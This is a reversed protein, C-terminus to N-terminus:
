VQRFRPGLGTLSLSKGASRKKRLGLGAFGFALLVITAPEPSSLEPGAPAGRVIVQDGNALGALFGIQGADNLGFRGFDLWSVTSGLLPDGRAIIKEAIADPGTFIGQGGADLAAWFAITGANNIAPGFSSFASFPGSVDAVQNLSAGDGTYIGVQSLFAVEGLDNISTSMTGLTGLGDSPDVIITLSGGNGRVLSNFVGLGPGVVSAMTGADNIDPGFFAGIGALTAADYLLSPSGVGTATYLQSAFTAGGSLLATGTNNIVQGFWNPGISPNAPPSAFTVLLGGNGGLVSVSTTSSGARFVVTGNNDITQDFLATHPFDNAAVISTVPGGTGTFLGETASPALNGRFAVRGLDNIAVGPQFQSFPSTGFVGTGRAIEVFTYPIAVAAPITGCLVAVAVLWAGLPSLARSRGRRRSAAHRLSLACIVDDM